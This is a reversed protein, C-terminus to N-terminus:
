DKGTKQRLFAILRDVVPAPLEEGSRARCFEATKKYSAFCRQCRPVMKLQKEVRRHLPSLGTGSILDDFAHGCEECAVKSEDSM